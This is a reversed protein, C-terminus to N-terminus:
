SRMRRPTARQLRRILRLVHGLTERGEATAELGVFHVGLRVRANETRGVHKLRGSITLAPTEPEISFACEVAADAPWDPDAETPLSVSVGGASIDVMKGTWRKSQTGNPDSETTRWVEIPVSLHAPVPARFFVRRQLEFMILPHALRIAETEAGDVAFRCRAAVMTNFVYKKHGRRFSVGINQGEVIEPPTNAGPMPYEIVIQRGTGGLGLMRSKLTAWGDALQCSVTAPVHASIAELLYEDRQAPNLRYPQNM